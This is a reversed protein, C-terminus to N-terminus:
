EYVKVKFTSFGANGEVGKGGYGPKTAQKWKVEM